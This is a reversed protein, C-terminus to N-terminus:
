KCVLHAIIVISKKEQGKAIASFLSHQNHNSSKSLLVIAYIDENKYLLFYNYIFM